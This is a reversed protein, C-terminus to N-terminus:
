PASRGRWEDRPHRGFDGPGEDPGFRWAAGDWWRPVSLSWRRYKDSWYRCEYWGVRVPAIAAPFWPSRNALNGDLIPPAIM